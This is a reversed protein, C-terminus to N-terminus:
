STKKTPFMANLVAEVDIGQERLKAIKVLLAMNTIESAGKWFDRERDSDAKGDYIDNVTFIGAKLFMFIYYGSLPRKGSLLLNLHTRQLGVEDALEGQNINQQNIYNKVLEVFKKHLRELVMRQMTFGKRRIRKKPIDCRLTKVRKSYRIDLM